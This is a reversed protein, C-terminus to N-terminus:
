VLSHRYQHLHAIGYRRSEVLQLSPHLPPSKSQYREELFLLGTRALLNGAAILNLIDPVEKEYPPDIYIIDYPSLLRPLAKRVDMALVQVMPEIELTSANDRICQAALRDHEVFTAFSAGCSIAELGMAGSGAFLDLFKAQDLWSRCINFVAGRLLATTPRTTDSKPTKLTRGKFTGSNIRLSM